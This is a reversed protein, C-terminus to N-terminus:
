NPPPAQGHRGRRHQLEEGSLTENNDRDAREFAARPQAAFEEFSLVANNDADVREFMAQPSPPDRRERRPQDASQPNPSPRNAEREARRAAHFATAEDLSLTSSRNTDARDFDARLFADMEARTVQNDANADMRAFPPPPGGGRENHCATGQTPNQAIAVSGAAAALVAALSLAILTNKRM